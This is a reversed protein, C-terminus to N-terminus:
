HSDQASASISEASPNYFQVNLEVEEISEAPIEASPNYQVARTQQEVKFNGISEVLTANANILEAFSSANLLKANANLLDRRSDRLSM